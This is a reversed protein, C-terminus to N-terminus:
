RRNEEQVKEWYEEETYITAGEKTIRAYKNDDLVKWYYGGNAVDEDLDKQISDAMKKNYIEVYFREEESGLEKTDSIDLVEFPSMDKTEELIRKKDEEKM